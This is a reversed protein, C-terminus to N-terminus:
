KIKQPHSPNEKLFRKLESRRTPLPPTDSCGSGIFRFGNRYLEIVVEWKEVDSKKPARFTKGMPYLKRGCDPCRFEIQRDEDVVYTDRHAEEEKGPVTKKFVKRCEFCAHQLTHEM